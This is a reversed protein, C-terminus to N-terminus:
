SLDHGNSAIAFYYICALGPSGTACTTYLTCLIYIFDAKLQSEWEKARRKVNYMANYVFHWVYIKTENVFIENDLHFYFFGVCFFFLLFLRPFDTTLSLSLGANASPLHPSPPMAYHSRKYHLTIIVWKAWGKFFMLLLNCKRSYCLWLLMVLERIRHINERIKM